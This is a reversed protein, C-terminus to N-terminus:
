ECDLLYAYDLITKKNPERLLFYRKFRVVDGFRNEGEVWKDIIEYGRDRLISIIKRLETTGLERQAEAVTLSKHKKLYDVVRNINSM